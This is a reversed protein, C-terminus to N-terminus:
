HECCSTFKEGGIKQADGKREILKKMAFKRRGYKGGYILPLDGLFFRPCSFFSVNMRAIFEWM